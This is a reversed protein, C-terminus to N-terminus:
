AHPGTTRTPAQQLLPIRYEYFLELFLPHAFSLETDFAPIWDVRYPRGAAM